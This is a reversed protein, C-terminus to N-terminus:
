AIIKEMYTMRVHPLILAARKKGIGAIEELPKAYDGRPVFGLQYESLVNKMIEPGIGRFMCSAATLEREGDAPRPRYDLLSGGCLVKHAVSLLRKYPSAQWRMVPVGIAFCQAEFDRLREEYSGIQFSLEKGRYRKWLASQIAGSVDKDDGLVLIMSTHGAERLALIQSYLHGTPSLASAVYDDVEKFEADFTIKDLKFCVDVPIETNVELPMFRPDEAVALALAQARKGEGAAIYATIRDSSM